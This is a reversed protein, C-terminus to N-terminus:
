KKKARYWLFLLFVFLIVALLAVPHYLVLTFTWLLALYMWWLVQAVMERIFKDM